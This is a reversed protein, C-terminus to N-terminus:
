ARSPLEQEMRLEAGSIRPGDIPVVPSAATKSM